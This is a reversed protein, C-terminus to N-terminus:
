LRGVQAYLSCTGPQILGRRLTGGGAHIVEAVVSINLTETLNQCVPERAERMSETWNAREADVITVEDALLKLLAVDTMDEPM